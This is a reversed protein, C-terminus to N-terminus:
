KFDMKINDENRMSKGTPRKREAKGTVILM